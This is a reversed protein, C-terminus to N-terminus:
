SDKIQIKVGFTIFKEKGQEDPQKKKCKNAVTLFM